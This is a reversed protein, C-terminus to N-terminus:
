RSRVVKVGSSSGGAFAGVGLAFGLDYWHGNNNIAYIAVNDDFLSFIFSFPVIMGHWLGKWFGVKVVNMCDQVNVVDACSSIFMVILLLSLIKISNKM